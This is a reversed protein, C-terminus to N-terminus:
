YNTSDNKKVLYDAVNYLVVNKTIDSSFKSYMYKDFLASPVWCQGTIEKNTFITYFLNMDEPSIVDHCHIRDKPPKSSWTDDRHLQITAEKGIKLFFGCQGTRSCDPVAPHKFHFKLNESQNIEDQSLVMIDDWVSSLKNSEKILQLIKVYQLRVPDFNYHIVTNINPCPMRETPPFNWIWGSSECTHCVQESDIQLKLSELGNIAGDVYQRHAKRLGRELFVEELSKVINEPDIEPLEEDQFTFIVYLIYDVITNLSSVYEHGAVHLFKDTGEHFTNDRIFEFNKIEYVPKIEKIQPLRSAGKMINFLIKMDELSSTDVKAALADIVNEYLEPSIMRCLPLNINELLYVLDNSLIYRRQLLRILSVLIIDLQATPAIRLLVDMELPTFNDIGKIFEEVFRRNLEYEFSEGEEWDVWKGVLSRVNDVFLDVFGMFRDGWTEVMYKCEEWVLITTEWGYEKIFVYFNLKDMLHRHCEKMMWEVEFVVTMKHLLRFSQSEMVEIKKEESDLLSLFLTVTETNFEEMEIETQSLENILRDFVLSNSTLLDPNITLNEDQDKVKVTISDVM